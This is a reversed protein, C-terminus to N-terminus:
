HLKEQRALNVVGHKALCLRFQRVFAAAHQPANLCAPRPAHL